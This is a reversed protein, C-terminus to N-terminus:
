RTKPDQPEPDELRTAIFWSHGAPDVVAASRDGYPTDEPARLSTAGAELAQRYTVDADEVYLHMLSPM